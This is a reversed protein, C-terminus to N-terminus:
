LYKNRDPSWIFRAADVSVTQNVAVNGNHWRLSVLGSLYGSFIPKWNGSDGAVSQNRTGSSIVRGNQLLQWPAVPSSDARDIWSAYIELKRRVPLSYKFTISRTQQAGVGAGLVFYYNDQYQDADTAASWGATREVFTLDASVVGYERIRDTIDFVSPSEQTLPTFLSLVLGSTIAM